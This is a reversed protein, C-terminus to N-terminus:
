GVGLAEGAGVHEEGAAIAATLVARWDAEAELSALLSNMGFLIRSLLVLGRRKPERWGIRLLNKAVTMKIEFTLESLRTTYDRTYRYPQPALVPEFCYLVFREIIERLPESCDEPFELGAALARWLAPGRDGSLIATIVGRFAARADEDFTQVCGFDLFVVRDEGPFLFNGPHPDANFMGHVLLSRFVFGFLVEGVADRRAADPEHAPTLADLSQGHMYATILARETSLERHVAPILVRPDGAWRASFAAMNEAEIRYDCEEAIRGLFDEIMVKGEVNPLLKFMTRAIGGANALDSRVAEAIGPYQVKVAVERGIGGQGAGDAASSEAWTEAWSEAWSETLTARYVQGISAAAIPEREISAFVEDLPRGLAAELTPAMEEWALPEASVQLRSLLEAYVAQAQPPVLGDMFSLIQGVKMPLGKMQAMTEFLQEATRRHLTMMAEEKGARLRKGALGVATGGLRAALGGLKALRGARGTKIGM